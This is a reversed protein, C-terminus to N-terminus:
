CQNVLPGHMVRWGANPNAWSIIVRPHCHWAEGWLGNHDNAWRRLKAGIEARMFEACAPVRVRLGRKSLFSVIPIYINRHTCGHVCREFVRKKVFYFRDSHLSTSTHVLTCMARFGKKSSISVIPFTFKDIHVGTCVDSAFWKKVIYFRDSHLNTSTHVWACM